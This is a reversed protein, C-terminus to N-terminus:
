NKSTIFKHIKTARREWTFESVDELAKKAIETCDNEMVYQIKDALDNPNDAECLIANEKDKLVELISPLNSAIIPVKSTMYEFMKLPSMYYAYHQTFPFPMLLAKSHRMYFKLHLIPQRDIFILRERNIKLSDSLNLYDNVCSMPGGIFAFCIEKDNLYPISKIIDEIGKEDGLTKYRGIYSLVKKNKLKDLQPIDLSSKEDFKFTSM